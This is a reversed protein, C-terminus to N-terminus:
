SSSKRFSIKSEQGRLLRGINSAHRLLILGAILSITITLHRGEILYSVVPAAAVAALAALSSYRFLVAVLLWVAALLGAVLPSFALIIGLATAVGKGGKFKLWLPFCHGLIAGYAAMIAMDVGYLQEAVLVPVAGKLADLVLTAAALKKSGTRLVNTAGISGSGIQRIDGRGAFKTLLLGVPISGLFYGIVTAAYFPWTYDIGGLFNPM